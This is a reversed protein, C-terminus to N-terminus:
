LKLIIAIVEQLLEHPYAVSFLSPISFTGMGVMTGLSFEGVVCACLM